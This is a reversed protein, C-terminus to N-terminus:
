QTLMDVYVGTSRYEDTTIYSIVRPIMENGPDVYQYGVFDIADLIHICPTIIYGKVM